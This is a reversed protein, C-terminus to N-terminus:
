SICFFTTGSSISPWLAIKSLLHNVLNLHDIWIGPIADTIRLFYSLIERLEETLLSTNGAETFEVLCRELVRLVDPVVGRLATKLNVFQSDKRAMLEGRQRALAPVGEVDEAAIRRRAVVIM